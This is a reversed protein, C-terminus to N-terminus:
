RLVPVTQEVQDDYRPDDPDVEVPRVGGYAGSVYHIEIDGPRPQEAARAKFEEVSEVPLINAGLKLLTGFRGARGVGEGDWVAFAPRKRELQSADVVLHFLNDRTPAIGALEAAATLAKFADEVQQNLYGAANWAARAENDELMVVREPHLDPDCLQIAGALDEVASALTDGLRVLNAEASNEKYDNRLTALVQGAVRQKVEARTQANAALEGLALTVLNEVQADDVKKKPADLVFDSLKSIAATETVALVQDYRSRIGTFTESVQGGGTTLADISRLFVNLVSVSDYM